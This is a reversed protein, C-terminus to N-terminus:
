GVSDERGSGGTGSFIGPCSMSPTRSRVLLRAEVEFDPSGLTNPEQGLSKGIMSRGLITATRLLRSVPM